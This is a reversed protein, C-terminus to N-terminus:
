VKSLAPPAVKNAVELLSVPSQTLGMSLSAVTRVSLVAMAVDRAEPSHAALALRVKKIQRNLQDKDISMERAFRRQGGLTYVASLLACPNGLARYAKPLKGFWGLRELRAEILQHDPLEEPGTTPQRQRHAQGSDEDGEQPAAPDGIPRSRLAVRARAQMTLCAATRLWKILALPSPSRFEALGRRLMLDAIDELLEDLEAESLAGRGHNPWARRIAQAILCLLGEVVPRLAPNAGDRLLALRHSLIAEAHAVRCAPSCPCSLHALM